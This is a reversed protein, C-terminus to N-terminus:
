SEKPGNWLGIGAHRKRLSGQRLKLQEVYAAQAVVREQLLSRELLQKQIDYNYEAM